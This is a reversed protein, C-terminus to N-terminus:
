PGRLGEVYMRKFLVKKETGPLVTAFAQFCLAHPPKNIERTRRTVLTCSVGVVRALLM